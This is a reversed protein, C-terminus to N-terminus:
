LEVKVVMDMYSSCGDELLILLNKRCMSDHQLLGSGERWITLPM